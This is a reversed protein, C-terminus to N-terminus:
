AKRFSLEKRVMPAELGDIELVKGQAGWEEALKNYLANLSQSNVTQYAHLADEGLHERVWNFFKQREDPTAPVRVALKEVVTVRGFGTAIYTDTGSEELMALVVNEQAKYQEYLSDSQAKAETYAEKLERLQKVHDNMEALTTM